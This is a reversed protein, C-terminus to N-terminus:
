GATSINALANLYIIRVCVEQIIIQASLDFGWLGVRSLMVAALFVVLLGKTDGIWLICVSAAIMALQWNLFWIGSRVPGIKNMIRPAIWTASLELITSVSRAIGISTSGFGISMLYAVMQGGFSFVTFYLLSLTISPLFAHHRIYFMLARGAYSCKKGFYDMSLM